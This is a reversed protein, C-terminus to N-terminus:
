KDSVAGDQQGSTTSSLIVQWLQMDSLDKDIKAPDILTHKSIQDLEYGLRLLRYVLPGSKEVLANVESLEGHREIFLDRNEYSSVIIAERAPYSLVEIEDFSFGLRRLQTVQFLTAPSEPDDLLEVVRQLWNEQDDTIALKTNLHEDSDTDIELESALYELPEDSAELQYPTLVYNGIIGPETLLDIAVSAPLNILSSDLDPRIQEEILRQALQPPIKDILKSDTYGLERLVSIIEPSLQGHRLRSTRGLYSRSNIYTIPYAQNNAFVVAQRGVGFRPDSDSYIAQIVISELQNIRTELEEAEMDNDIAKILVELKAGRVVDLESLMFAITKARLKEDKSLISVIEEESLEPYYNNAWDELLAKTKIGQEIQQQQTWQTPDADSISDHQELYEKPSPADVDPRLLQRLHTSNVVRILPSNKIITMLYQPSNSKAVTAIGYGIVALSLIITKM